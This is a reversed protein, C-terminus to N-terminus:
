WLLRELHERAANDDHYIPNRLDLKANTMGQIYPNHRPVDVPYNGITAGSISSLIFVFPLLAINERQREPFSFDPHFIGFRQVRAMCIAGLLLLAPMAILYIVERM